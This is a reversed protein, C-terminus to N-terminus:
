SRNRQSSRRAGARRFCSLNFMPARHSFAMPDSRTGDATRISADVGARFACRIQGGLSNSSRRGPNWSWRSMGRSSMIFSKDPTASISRRGAFLALTSITAQAGCSAVM